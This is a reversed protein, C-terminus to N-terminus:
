IISMDLDVHARAWDRSVPMKLLRNSFYVFVKIENTRM